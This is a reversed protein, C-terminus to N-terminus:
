SEGPGVVFALRRLRDSGSETSLVVATHGPVPRPLPQTALSLTRSLVALPLSRDLAYSM